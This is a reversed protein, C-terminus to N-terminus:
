LTSYRTTSNLRRLCQMLSSITRYCSRELGITGLLPSLYSSSQSSLNTLSYRCLNNLNPISVDSSEDKFKKKWSSSNKYAAMQFRHMKMEPSEKSTECDLKGVAQFSCGSSIGGSNLSIYGSSWSHGEDGVVALHLATLGCKKLRYSNYKTRKRPRTKSTVNAGYALLVAATTYEKQSLAILLPKWNLDELDMAKSGTNASLRSRTTLGHKNPNAGTMLLAWCLKANGLRVAASLPIEVQQLERFLVSKDAFSEASALIDFSKNFRNFGPYLSGLEMALLQRTWYQLVTRGANDRALVNAGTELLHKLIKVPRGSFQGCFFHMIATRGWRDKQEVDAGEQLLAKTATPSNRAALMLPYKGGADAQDLPSRMSQAGCLAKLTLAIRSKKLRQRGQKSNRGYPDRSSYDDLKQFIQEPGCLFWHVATREDPSQKAPDAGLDILTDVAEHEWLAAAIQLATRQGDWLQVDISAGASVLRRCFSPEIFGGAEWFKQAYHKAGDLRETWDALVDFVETTDNCAITRSIAAFGPPCPAAWGRERADRLDKGTRSSWGNWVSRRYMIHTSVEDLWEISEVEALSIKLAKPAGESICTWIMDPAPVDTSLFRGRDLQDNEICQVARIASTYQYEGYALHYRDILEYGDSATWM